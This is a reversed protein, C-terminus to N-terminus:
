EYNRRRLLQLSDGDYVRIAKGWELEYYPKVSVFWNNRKHHPRYASRWVWQISGTWSEAFGAAGKGTVRLLGSRINGAVRSEETEEVAAAIDTGSRALENIEKVMAQMTFAAAHACEEPGNGSSISLVIEEM